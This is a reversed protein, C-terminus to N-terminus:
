AAVGSFPEFLVGCFSLCASLLVTLFIAGALYALRSSMRPLEMCVWTSLFAIVALFGYQAPQFFALGGDRQPLLFVTKFFEELQIAGRLFWATFQYLALLAISIVASVTLSASLSKGM